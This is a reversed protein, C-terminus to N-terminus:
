KLNQDRAPSRRAKMSPNSGDNASSTHGAKMITANGTKGLTPKPAFGAM